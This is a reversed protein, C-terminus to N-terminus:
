AVEQIIVAEGIEGHIVIYRMSGFLKVKCLLHFEGAAITDATNMSDPDVLYGEILGTTKLGELWARVEATYARREEPRNIKNQYRKGRTAIAGLIYDTMRRRFIMVLATDTSTTLGSRLKYGYDSDYEFAAIGADALSIYTSRTIDDFELGKVGALLAVSDITALDVHPGLQSFVSAIWSTPATLGNADLEPIYNYVWPWGYIGRDGRYDAVDTIGQAATNGSPGCMAVMRATIDPNVAHALLGANITSGSKEPCFVLNVEKNAELKRLGVVSSTSGVYDSDAFTGDSGSALATFAVNVARIASAGAAASVLSSKANIRSVADAKTLINKYVEVKSPSNAESYSLTLDWHTAEEDTAATVKAQISNGWVGKSLATLTVVVAAAADVLALTGAAQTGNTVRVIRLGGFRKGLLAKYGKYGVSGYAGFTDTFEKASGIPTVTNLPGKQFEGVIGIIGQPSGKVRGPATLEDISLGDVAIWDLPNQSRIPASM